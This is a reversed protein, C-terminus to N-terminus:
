KYDEKRWAYFGDTRVEYVDYGQRSFVDMLKRRNATISEHVNGGTQHVELYWIDIIDKVEGVTEDTLALMESGEIDCKAFDVHQLGLDQILKLITKAPVVITKVNPGHQVVTSNMTSNAQSVYFDILRNENHLAVNVPHINSYPGIMKKLISFHTPTPEIAYVDQSSDQAFISFLGINAGIDLITLGSKNDFYEGYFGEHNFQNLIVDAYNASNSFHQVIEPDDIQMKIIDKKSSLLERYLSDPM